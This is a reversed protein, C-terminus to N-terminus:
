SIIGPDDHDRISTSSKPQLEPGVYAAPQKPSLLLWGLRPSVYREFLRVLLYYVASFAATLVATLTVEFEPDLPVNSATLWGLVGGVLIPVLTRVISAWLADLATKM